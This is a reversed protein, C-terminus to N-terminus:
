KGKNQREAHRRARRNMGSVKGGKPLPGKPLGQMRDAQADMAELRAAIAYVDDKKYTRGKRVLTSQLKRLPVQGEEEGVILTEVPVGPALANIRKTQQKFLIDLRRPDGEGVLVVGCVGVVRHVLDMHSNMAVNQKVKWAVGFGSRMNDLAWGAAGRQDSAKDYVSNQLRRSFVWMALTAGVIIGTVLMFWEGGWLLGLLYFAVACGVICLVMLPVLKSDQERQIKFAQWMQSWTERRKARKRAKEAKAAQKDPNAMGM